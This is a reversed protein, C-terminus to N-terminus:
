SQPATDRAFPQLNQVSARSGMAGTLRAWVPVHCCSFHKMHMGVQWEKLNGLLCALKDVDSIQFANKDPKCISALRACSCEV